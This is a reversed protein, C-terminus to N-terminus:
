LCGLVNLFFKLEINWGDEKWFVGGGNRAVNGTFVGGHVSLAADEGVYVVGGDLTKNSEFHGNSVTM